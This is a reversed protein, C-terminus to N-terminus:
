SGRWPIWRSRNRTSPARAPRGAVDCFLRLKRQMEGRAWEMKGNTQPHAVGALIHRVGLDNLRKEFTSVGKDKKESETAYFQSGRDPLISAPKGYASTAKDLVKVAHRATAEGFVCWVIFRSADDQYAMFWRGDDLRKYDTHWMSNAHKREYRIWKRRTQKRKHEVADGSERLVAHVVGKPISTGSRKIRDWIRGVGSKLACRATLVAM